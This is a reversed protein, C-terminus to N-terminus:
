DVKSVSVPLLPPSPLDGISLDFRFQDRNKPKHSWRGREWGGGRERRVKLGGGGAGFFTYSATSGVRGEREKGGNKRGIGGGRGDVM